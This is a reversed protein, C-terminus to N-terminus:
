KKGFKAIKLFKYNKRFKAIKPLDFFVFFILKKIYNNKNLGPPYFLLSALLAFRIKAKFIRLIQNENRLKAECMKLIKKELNM